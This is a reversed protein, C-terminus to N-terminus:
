RTHQIYHLRSMDNFRSNNILSVAWYNLVELYEAICVQFM